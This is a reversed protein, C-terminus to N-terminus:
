VYNVELPISKIRMSHYDEMLKRFIDWHDQQKIVICGSSGPINADFHVGLDGRQVGDVTVMFPAIPYFSGEVGKVNPMWLRQTSVTYKSYPPLLGRRPTKWSGFYQYGPLGSTAMFAVNKDEDQLILKGYQMTPISKNPIDM